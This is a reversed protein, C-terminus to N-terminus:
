CTFDLDFWHGRCNSQAVTASSAQERRNLLWRAPASGPRGKSLKPPMAGRRECLRLSRLTTPQLVEPGRTRPRRVSPSGPALGTERNICKSTSAEAATPGAPRTWRLNSVTGRFRQWGTRVSTGTSDRAYGGLYRKAVCRCQTNAVATPPEDSRAWSPACVEGASGVVRLSKAGIVAQASVQHTRAQINCTRSPRLAAGSPTVLM